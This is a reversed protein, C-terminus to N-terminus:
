TRGSTVAIHHMGNTKRKTNCDRCMCSTTVLDHVNGMHLAAPQLMSRNLHKKNTFLLRSELCGICYPHLPNVHLPLWAADVKWCASVSFGLGRSLLVHVPLLMCCKQFLKYLLMHKYSRYVLSRSHSTAVYLACCQDSKCCM